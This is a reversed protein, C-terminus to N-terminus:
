NGIILFAFSCVPNLITWGPFEEENDLQIGLKSLGHTLSSSGGWPSEEPPANLNGSESETTKRKKTSKSTFHEIRANKVEQSLTHLKDAVSSLQDDCPLASPLNHLEFLFRFGGTPTTLDFEDKVYMIQLIYYIQALVNVILCQHRVEAQQAAPQGVLYREATSKANVYIAVAIFSKFEGERNRKLSNMVRVLIGAQLLLRNRDLEHQRDSCVEILLFPCDNLLLLFDSRPTYSFNAGDVTAM